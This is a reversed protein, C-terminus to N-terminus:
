WINKSGAEFPDQLGISGLTHMIKLFLEIIKNQMM